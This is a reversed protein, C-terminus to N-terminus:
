FEVGGMSNPSRKCWFRARYDDSCSIFHPAIPSHVICKVTGNHGLALLKQREANRADWCCLTVTKEDPYLVYDENHNFIAQTRKEQKGASGAGTYAILCRATSLEWLRVVSDKGSSLLYKSNKSFAVSCVEQHAHADAFTNICKNSVGDWLKISGDKSGTAFIRANPSWEVSTVPLKHQDNPNSSVFCQSTEVRYLRLTPHQTAVLLWDGNPHFSLCRIQEAEQISKFAKKTSPKAYEFFKITYDRSGSVLIPEFPHFALTTIEDAHDYLTRIVPHNEASQQQSAQDSASIGDSMISSKALMRDIDLIKISADVSGTAIVTGQKDFAAARCPAKHSTVYCTEYQSADSTSPTKDAEYDFDLGAVVDIEIDNNPLSAKKISSEQASNEEDNSVATPNNLLEQQIGLKVLNLLRSSPPCPPSAQVSGSLGVAIHQYGDYFLQSIILRYLNERFKLDNKLNLDTINDLNKDTSKDKGSGLKSTPSHSSISAQIDSAKDSSDM